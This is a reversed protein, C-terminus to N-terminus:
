ALWTYPGDGHVIVSSKVPEVIFNMRLGHILWYFKGPAGIVDFSTGNVNAVNLLRISGNYIPTIHVTYDSAIANVYKPLYVTTSQADIPIEGTGRYYVGAEPGELCAHVLYKDRDLPHQIVFTKSGTPGTVGISGTPGTPGTPGTLGDENEGPLVIPGAPGEKGRPGEPGICVKSKCTTPKCPPKIPTVVDCIFKKELCSKTSPKECVTKTTIKDDNCEITECTMSTDHKWRPIKRRHGSM